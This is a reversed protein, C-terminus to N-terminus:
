SGDEGRAGDAQVEGALGAAVDRVHLYLSTEGAEGKRALTSRLDDQRARGSEGLARTSAGPENAAVRRRVSSCLIARQVRVHDNVVLAREDILLRDLQLFRGIHHGDSLKRSM